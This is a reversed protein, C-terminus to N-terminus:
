AGIGGMGAQTLYGQQNNEGTASGPLAVRFREGTYLGRSLHVFFTVDINAILEPKRACSTLIGRMGWRKEQMPLRVNRM